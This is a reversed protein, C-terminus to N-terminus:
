SEHVHGVTCVIVPTSVVVLMVSRRYTSGREEVEKLEEETEEDGEGTYEMM